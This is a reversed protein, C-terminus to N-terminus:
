RLAIMLKPELDELTVLKDLLSSELYGCLAVPDACWPPIAPTGLECCVRGPLPYYTIVAINGPRGRQKNKLERQCYYMSTSLAVFFPSPGYDNIVDPPCSTSPCLPTALLQDQMLENDLQSPKIVKGGSTWIGSATSLEAWGTNFCIQLWCWWQGMTCSFSQFRNESTRINSWQGRGGLMWRVHHGERNKEARGSGHM